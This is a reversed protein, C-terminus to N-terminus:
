CREEKILRQLSSKPDRRLVTDGGGECKLSELLEGSYQTSVLNELSILSIIDRGNSYTCPKILQYHCRIPINIRETTSLDSQAGWFRGYNHRLLYILVQICTCTYIYIWKCTIFTKGRKNQIQVNVDNKCIRWTINWKEELNLNCKGINCYNM